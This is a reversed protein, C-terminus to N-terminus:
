LGGVGLVDHAAAFEIRNRAHVFRTMRATEAADLLPLLPAVDGETLSDVRLLWIELIGTM